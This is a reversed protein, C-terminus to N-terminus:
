INSLVGQIGQHGSGVLSIDFHELLVAGFLVCNLNAFPRM